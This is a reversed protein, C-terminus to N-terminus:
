EEVIRGERKHTYLVMSTVTSKVGDIKMVKDKLLKRFTVVDDARVIAIIDFEGTVEYVDLAEELKTIESAVDELKSSDVFVHIIALVGRRM